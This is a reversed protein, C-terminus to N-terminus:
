GVALWREVLTRAIALRPPLLLRGPEGPEGFFEVDDRAAEAVEDRHFWRADELEGDRPAPDGAVLDAEFGLMLSGPFPWPQSAAYRVAGVTVGSEEAVERAVAAELTEGPEVFGALASYRGAPWAPQRGLLVRDAGDVVLMIVVPDTRPHHHHGNPCVRLHGGERPETPEGCAGCFRTTRAWHLGAAAYALVGAAPAPLAAAAERLGIAGEREGPVAFLPGAEDVGLFIASALPGDARDGLPGAADGAGVAEALAVPEPTAGARGV